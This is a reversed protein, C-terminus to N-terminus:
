GVLRTRVDLIADGLAAEPDRFLPELAVEAAGLLVSDRGLGAPTVSVGEFAAPLARSALGELVEERQVRLVPDLFGGLVLLQPNFANVLNALGRGLDRAIPGLAAAHGELTPLVDALRPVQAAPLGLARAIAEGGVQTEWCGRSGCHCERGEPDANLHGVEGAFGSAGEFPHGGALIGAGVGVNGSLYIVDDIGIAAGRRHEALVALDADNGLALPMPTELGLAALLIEGFSVDHWGLNPALRVLGDARRVLGPVGIGIGVLPAAPDADALVQRVLTAVATAVKWPERAEGFELQVRATLAGGLGVRAVQAAEVGLDVALVYPGGDVLQVGASPRGAAPRARGEREAPTESTECVGLVELEGVLAGITSRNLGMMATLEARSLRGAGHVHRLLTGLNHRRVAEQNRGQGSRPRSVM